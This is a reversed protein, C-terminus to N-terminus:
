VKSLQGVDVWIGLKLGPIELYAQGKNVGKRSITLVRGTVEGNEGKFRVDDGNRIAM